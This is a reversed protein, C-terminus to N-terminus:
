DLVAVKGFKISSIISPNSNFDIKFKLSFDGYFQNSENCEKAVSYRLIDKAKLNPQGFLSIVISTDLGVFCNENDLIEQILKKNYYFCKVENHIAWKEQIKDFTISCIEDAPMSLSGNVPKFGKPITNCGLIAILFLLSLITFNKMNKNKQFNELLFSNEQLMLTYYM